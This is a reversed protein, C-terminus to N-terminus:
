RPPGSVFGPHPAHPPPNGPGYQAPPQSSPYATSGPYGGPAASPAPYGGPAPGANGPVAPATAHALPPSYPSAGPVGGAPPTPTGPHGAAPPYGVSPPQYQPTAPAAAPHGAAPAPPPSAPTDPVYPVGRAAGQPDYRWGPHHQVGYQAAIQEASAVPPSMNAPSPAVGPTAPAGPYGGAVAGPAGAPAPTMPRPSPQGQAAAPQFSPGSPAGFMTQADPGTVIREGQRELRIGRPNIFIGATGGLEGNIAVSVYPTVYDGCKIHAADLPFNAPDFCQIEFTTKMQFIYCGKGHAQTWAPAGPADGDVIKWAFQPAALWMGIQQMVVQNGAITQYSGVAHQYITGLAADIGPATKPIAVAFWRHWKNEPLPQQKHDKTNIDTLSGSIFRGEPLPLDKAPYRVRANM